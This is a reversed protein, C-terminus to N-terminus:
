RAEEVLFPDYSYVNDLSSKFLPENADQGNSQIYQFRYGFEGDPGSSVFYPRLNKCSGLGDEAEDRVTQDGCLDFAFQTQSSQQNADAFNRGPFVIGIPTGWADVVIPSHTGNINCLDSTHIENPATGSTKCFHDTPIKSLVESSSESQKLLVRDYIPTGNEIWDWLHRVRFLLGWHVRATRPLSYRCRTNKRVM